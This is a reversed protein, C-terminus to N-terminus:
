ITVLGNRDNEIKPIDMNFFYYNLSGSGPVFNIDTDATTTFMDIINNENCHKAISDFILKVHAPEKSHFASIYLYGNRYSKGTKTNHTDLRYFCVLDKEFVFTHFSPNAVIDSLPKKDYIDYTHKNYNDILAQLDPLDMNQQNHLYTFPETKKYTTYANYKTEPGPMFGGEILNKIHVPRHSMRKTGFCPSKITSGITYTALSINLRTVTEKTLVGILYPALHLNRLRPELCLFNVDIIQHENGVLSLSCQKGIICGVIRDTKGKPFFHILLSDKLYYALLSADYILKSTESGVYHKNVFVLTTELLTIDYQTYVVYDLKIPSKELEQNIKELLAEKSLIQKPTSEKSITVPQTQWFSM